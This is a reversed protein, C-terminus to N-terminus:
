EAALNPDTFTRVAGVVANLDFPKPFLAQYSGPPLDRVTSEAAGTLIVVPVWLLRPDQRMRRLIEVGSLGPMFLDLVLAAPATGTELRNWAELGGNLCEVDFGADKLAESLVFTLLEEDDVVLVCPREGSGPATM